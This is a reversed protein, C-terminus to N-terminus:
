IEKNEEEWEKGLSTCKCRIEPNCSDVEWDLHSGFLVALIAVTLMFLNSLIGKEYRM